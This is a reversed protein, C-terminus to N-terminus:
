MMGVLALSSLAYLVTVTGITGFVAIPLTRHPDKAEAALCCVEDYGLYGFFASTAGRFVGSMGKPTWNEVNDKRFLCLGAFIMFLVLLMKLITFCNVTVKGMEVGLLLLGVCAAQLLGAFINIGALGPNLPAWITINIMETWTVIKEGWSRAVASGSHLPFLSPPPPPLPCHSLFLFSTSPAFRIGYELCLCWAAIVAPLEGLGHFVYAYSSGASPIRCSMEAYSMASFSCGAGAILWSWVVGPGAYDHAILGALVFVGSGVTGGIGIALLDTLSLTRELKEANEEALCIAIPKRLFAKRWVKSIALAAAM